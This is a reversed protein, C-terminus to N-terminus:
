LIDKLRELSVKNPRIAGATAPFQSTTLGTKVFNWFQKTQTYLTLTSEKGLLMSESSLNELSLQGTCLVFHQPMSAQKEQVLM